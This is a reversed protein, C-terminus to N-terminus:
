ERRFQRMVLTTLGGPRATARWGHPRPHLIRLETELRGHRRRSPDQLSVRAAVQRSSRWHGGQASVTASCRREYIRKAAV